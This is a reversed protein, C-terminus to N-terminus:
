WLRPNRGIAEDAPYGTMQTFAPNVWLITGQNDTLVVANAAEELGAALVRLREEAQKREDIDMAIGSVKLLRGEPDFFGRGKVWIWHVTGDRWCARHEHMFEPKQPTVSAITRRLSERDEAYVAQMLVTFDAPSEPSLGLLQKATNSWVQEDHITDWDFFGIRGAEVAMGMRDESQRLETEIQGRALAECRSKEEARQRGQSAARVERRSREERQQLVFRLAVAHGTTFAITAFHSTWITITPHLTQKTAEYALMLCATSVGTALLSARRSNLQSNLM